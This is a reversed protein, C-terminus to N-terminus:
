GIGDIELRCTVRFLQQQHFAILLPTDTKVRNLDTVYLIHAFSTVLNMQSM